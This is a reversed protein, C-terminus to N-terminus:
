TFTAIFAVHGVCHAYLPRTINCHCSLLCDVVQHSLMAHCGSGGRCCSADMVADDVPQQLM